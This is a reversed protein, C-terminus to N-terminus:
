ISGFRVIRSVLFDAYENIEERSPYQLNKSEEEKCDEMEKEVYEIARRQARRVSFIKNFPDSQIEKIQSDLFNRLSAASWWSSVQELM